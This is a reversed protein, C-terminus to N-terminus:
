SKARRKRRFKEVYEHLDPVFFSEKETESSLLTPTHTGKGPITIAIPLDHTTTIGTCVYGFELRKVGLPLIRWIQQIDSEIVELSREIMKPHQFKTDFSGEPIKEKIYFEEPIRDKIYYTVILENYMISPEILQYIRISRENNEKAQALYQNLIFIPHDMLSYAQDFRQSNHITEFKWKVLNEFKELEPNFTYVENNPDVELLNFTLPIEDEIILNDIDNPYINTFSDSASYKKEVPVINFWTEIINVEKELNFLITRSVRRELSLDVKAEQNPKIEPITWTLQLGEDLLKKTPELSEFGEVSSDMVKYGYPVINNIQVNTMSSDLPNEFLTTASLGVDSDPVKVIEQEAKISELKGDQGIFIVSSELTKPVPVLQNDIENALFGGVNNDPLVLDLKRIRPKVDPDINGLLNQLDALEDRERIIRMITDLVTQFDYKPYGIEDLYTSLWTAMRRPYIVLKAENEWFLALERILMYFDEVIATYLVRQNYFFKMEVYIQELTEIKQLLEMSVSYSVSGM